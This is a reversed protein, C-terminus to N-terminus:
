SPVEKSGEGPELYRGAQSDATSSGTVQGEGGGQGNDSARASSAPGVLRIVAESAGLAAGLERVTTQLVAEMDLAGSLRASIDSVLQNRRVLGEMEQLLQANELANAVQDAMTQLISIDQDSFAQPVVSQVTLAGIVRDRCILPLAMESRTEPLLPNDFRVAEEGVDLAIRAQSQAMCWGIMSDGGVELKHGQALMERGAEGTGAQLAAWRGPDDLLFLGVYYYDFRDRILNVAQRILTQPERLSSASRSVESAAQLQTARRDLEWTRQAVRQELGAVSERLQAAM